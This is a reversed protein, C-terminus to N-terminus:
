IQIKPSMISSQDLIEYDGSEGLESGWLGNDEDDKLWPITEFDVWPMLIKATCGKLKEM